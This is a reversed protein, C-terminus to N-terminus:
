CALLVRSSACTMRLCDAAMSRCCHSTCDAAIRHLLRCCHSTPSPLRCGHKPLLATCVKHVCTARSLKRMDYSYLNCDHKPLVATTNQCCLLALPRVEHVCTARSLKRMDYSYLNCNENAVVFNLPEMPNWALANSATQMVIKRIPASSRLDYLVVSRDSGSSGLVQSEAQM